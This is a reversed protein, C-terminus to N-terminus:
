PNALLLGRKGALIEQVEKNPVASEDNLMLAAHIRMPARGGKTARVIIRIAPATPDSHVPLIGV